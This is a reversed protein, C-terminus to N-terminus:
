AGVCNQYQSGACPLQSCCKKYGTPRPLTKVDRDCLTVTRSSNARKMATVVQSLVNSLM